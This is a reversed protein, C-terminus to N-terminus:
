FHDTRRIYDRVRDENLTGISRAFYGRAWFTGPPLEQRLEPFEKLMKHATKGKLTRLADAVSLKPPIMVLMHVHDVAVKLTDFVCDIEQAVLKFTEECYQSRRGGFIKVSYM